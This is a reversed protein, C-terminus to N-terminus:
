WSFRVSQETHTSTVIVTVFICLYYKNEFGM